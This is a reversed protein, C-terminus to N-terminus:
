AILPLIPKRMRRGRKVLQLVESGRLRVRRGLGSLGSVAWDVIAFPMGLFLLLAIEWGM